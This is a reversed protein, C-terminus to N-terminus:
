QASACCTPHHTLERFSASIFAQSSARELPESEQGPSPPAEDEEQRQPQTVLGRLSRERVLKRSSRSPGNYQIGDAMQGTGWRGCISCPRPPPCLNFLYNIGPGSKPSRDQARELTGPPGSSSCSCLQKSGIKFHDSRWLSKAAQRGFM